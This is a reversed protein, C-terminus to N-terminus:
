CSESLRCQLEREFKLEAQRQQNPTGLGKRRRDAAVARAMRKAKNRGINFTGDIESFWQAM